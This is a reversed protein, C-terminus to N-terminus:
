LLGSGLGYNLTRFSIHYMVFVNRLCFGIGRDGFAAIFRWGFLVKTESKSRRGKLYYSGIKFVAGGM